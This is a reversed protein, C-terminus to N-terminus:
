ILMVGVIAALAVGGGVLLETPIETKESPPSSQRAASRLPPSAANAARAAPLIPLFQQTPFTVDFGTAVTARIKAIEAESTEAIRKLELKHKAINEKEEQELKKMAEALKKREIELDAEEQVYKAEEKSLEKGQLNFKAEAARWARGREGKALMETGLAAAIQLIDGVVPIPGLIKAGYVWVKVIFQRLKRTRKRVRKWEAKVRKELRKLEERTNDIARQFEKGVKKVTRSVKRGIKKFFGQMQLEGLLAASLHNRARRVESMEQDTFGLSRGKDDMFMLQGMFDINGPKQSIIRDAHDLIYEEPVRM